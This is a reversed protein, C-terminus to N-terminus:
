SAASAAALEYDAPSINGLTSHRRIPNYFREIYDFIALRAANRSKFRQRYILEKKITAMFSEAAANDYADGRSGMSALVGSDRLTAGFALSAYQSGRDSHHVVGPEPRRRTVAMGLADVVLEAQLDSRMSWGVCRRSFADIVVALFLWGEWTPVYTIDAVWLEDPATATFVRRVRDPAAPAPNGRPASHRRRCRSAGALHAERMLRAVRKRGVHVGHGLALEAHVRPAGYVGSSSEHIAEIRERLAADALSHASPRRHRWAHYGSRSVGLARALRSVAHHPKEADILRYKM